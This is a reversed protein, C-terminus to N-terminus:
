RQLNFFFKRDVGPTASLKIKITGDENHARLISVDRDHSVAFVAGGNSISPAGGVSIETGSSGDSKTQVLGHIPLCDSKGPELLVKGTDSDGVTIVHGAQINPFFQSSGDLVAITTLRTKGNAGMLVSYGPTPTLGFSGSNSLDSTTIRTIIKSQVAVPGFYGAPATYDAVFFPGRFKAPDPITDGISSDVSANHGCQARHVQLFGKFLGTVCLIDGEEVDEACYVLTAKSRHGAIAGKVQGQKFRAGAM